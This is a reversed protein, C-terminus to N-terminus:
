QQLDRDIHLRCVPCKKNVVLWRDICDTHFFHSCPLTRVKENTEFESLCVSCKDEEGIPVPQEPPRYYHMYSCKDIVQQTVGQPLDMFEALQRLTIAGQPWQQAPQYHHHQQYYNYFHSNDVLFYPAFSPAAATANSPQPRFVVTRGNGNRSMTM